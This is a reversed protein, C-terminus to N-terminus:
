AAAGTGQHDDVLVHVHDIVTRHGARAGTDAARTGDPLINLEFGGGVVVAVESARQMRELPVEAVVGRRCVLVRDVLVRRIARIAYLEGNAVALLDEVDKLRDDDAGATRGNRRPVPCRSM